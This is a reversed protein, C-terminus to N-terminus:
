EEIASIMGAHVYAIRPQPLAIPHTAGTDDATFEVVIRPFRARIELVRATFLKHAGGHWGICKITAGMAAFGPVETEDAISM